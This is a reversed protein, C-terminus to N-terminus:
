PAFVFPYTVEDIDGPKDIKDFKWGKVANVVTREFAPDKMTSEALTAFTVNGFEDIAFWVTIRGVLGPKESLRKNYAFRLPARNQMIVREISARGRGGTYIGSGGPVQAAALSLWAAALCLAAALFLARFNRNDVIM